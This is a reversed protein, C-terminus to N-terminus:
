KINCAVLRAKFRGAVTQWSAGTASRSGGGGVWSVLNMIFALMAARILGPLPKVVM